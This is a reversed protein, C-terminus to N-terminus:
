HKWHAQSKEFVKRRNKKFELEGISAKELFCYNNKHVGITICSFYVTKCRAKNNRKVTFPHCNFRKLHLHDTPFTAEHFNMFQTFSAWWLKSHHSIQFMGTM